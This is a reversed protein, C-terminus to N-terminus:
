LHKMRFPSTLERGGGTLDQHQSTGFSWPRYSSLLHKAHIGVKSGMPRTGLLNEKQGLTMGLDGGPHSCLDLLPAAMHGLGFSRLM